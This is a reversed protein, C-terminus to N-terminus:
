SHKSNLSDLRMECSEAETQYRVWKLASYKSDETIKLTEVKLHSCTYMAILFSADVIGSLSRGEALVSLTASNRGSLRGVKWEFASKEVLYKVKGGLYSSKARPTEGSKSLAVPVTLVLDSLYRKPELICEVCVKLELAEMRATIKLPVQIDQRVHYRMLDFSGEPPTFVINGDDHFKTHDACSHLQCSELLNTKNFIIQCVPVGSLHAKFRVSGDVFASKVEGQTTFVCTLKEIVDLYVENRRHKVTSKRWPSDSSPSTKEQEIPSLGGSNVSLSPSSAGSNANSSQKHRMTRLQPLPSKSSTLTRKLSSVVGFDASEVEPKKSKLELLSDEQNQPFGFDVLEDLIEYIQTVYMYCASENFQGLKKNCLECLQYLFEFVALADVDFRTVAVVFMGNYMIHLFTTSGLMLVPPTLEEASIVEVRFADTIARRLGPKYIRSALIEGRHGYILIASIM